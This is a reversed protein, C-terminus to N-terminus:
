GGTIMGAEALIADLRSLRDDSLKAVTEPEFLSIRDLKGTVRDIMIERNRELVTNIESEDSVPIVATTDGDMVVRVMKANSLAKINKALKNMVLEDFLPNIPRAGMYKGRRKIVDENVEYQKKAIFEIVADDIKLKCERMSEFKSEENRAIRRTIGALAEYGLANFIVIGGSRTIRGIFEPRFCKQKSESHVAEGIADKVADEIEELPRNQRLMDAIEYQGINSTLVFFSKNGYATVGRTDEAVGEDFLRMLPDWMSPHAKEVEDFLILSYPDKNIDNILKGGEAYGEYGPPVGIIRSTAHSEKFSNMEYTTIKHSSSYVSAIQKALETKGTGSLGAFLFIAAPRSSDVMGKQILDLRDAVKAVAHNQGVIAQSLLYNFDKDQGMGLISEVPLLTEKSIIGAIDEKGIFPKDGGYLNSKTRKLAAISELLAIAKQPLRKSLLYDVSMRLAYDPSKEDFSVDYKESIESMKANIIQLILERKEATKPSLEEIEVFQLNIGGSQYDDFLKKTANNMIVALKYENNVLRKACYGIFEEAILDVNDIIYVPRPHEEMFTFIQAIAPNGTSQIGYHQSTKPNKDDGQFESFDLYVVPTEQLLASNSEKLAKALLHACATKGVGKEGFVAVNHSSPNYLVEIIEDTIEQREILNRHDKVSLNQCERLFVPLPVSLPNWKLNEAISVMESVNWKLQNILIMKVGADSSNLLELLLRREDVAKEGHESGSNAADNLIKVCQENFSKENLLLRSTSAGSEFNNYIHSKIIAFSKSLSLDHSAARNIIASVYGDNEKLIAYIMHAPSAECKGCTEAAKLASLLINKVGLSVGTIEGSESFVDINEFKNSLTDILNSVDIMGHLLESDFNGADTIRKFINLAFEACGCKQERALMDEVLDAAGDEWNAREYPNIDDKTKLRMKETASACLNFTMGNILFNSLIKSLRVVEPPNSQSGSERLVFLPYLLSLLTINKYSKEACHEIASEILFATSDDLMTVDLESQGDKWLM